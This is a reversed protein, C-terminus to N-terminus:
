EEGKANDDVRDSTAPLLKTTARQSFIKDKFYLIQTGMIPAHGAVFILMKGPEIIKGNKDLKPGALRSCEDPTLLPRAVEQFSTSVNGLMIATTKGSKTVSEKLKTSTGTMESLLKATAQKNPAYAVRVQCNSMISENQGYVGFLQELDQVILYAKIGYGAVYALGKEVVALKGVSTFEDAMFLLRHKYHKKQQGDEEYGLKVETLRRFIQNVIVNNLSRLRDIDSPPIVLYLTVPKDANMLDMIKFDSHSINKELIPDVYLNLAKSVSGVVGSLEAEAKNIMSRAISQIVSQVADTGIKCEVMEGLLEDLSNNPDNLLKYLESLNPAKKKEEQHKHLLFLILATILSKAEDKFYDASGGGKNGVADGEYILNMAINQVDKIEEAENIRIEELINFAVGTGDNCTPDFKLVLNNAKHRRWGATLNWLEGKIDLVLASERWSLLTPNVLGVGKGSRTPAFALVHTSSNDRLYHIKNKYKFGGVYVGVKKDLLGTAEIEKKTAFHATGHIDNYTKTKRLFLLKVAIFCLFCVAVGGTMYIYFNKFFKPYAQQYALSWSIWNFPNYYGYLFTEGLNPSYNFSRAIYQTAISSVITLSVFIAGLALAFIMTQNKGKAM